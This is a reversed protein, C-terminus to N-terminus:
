MRDERRPHRDPPGGRKSEIRYVRWAVGVGNFGPDMNVQREWWVDADKAYHREFHVRMLNMTSFTKGDIECLFKRRGVQQSRASIFLGLRDIKGAGM